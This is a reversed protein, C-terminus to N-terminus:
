QITVNVPIVHTDSGTQGAIQQQASGLFAINLPGSTSPQNNTDGSYQATITCIGTLFGTTNLQFQATGNTLTQGSAYNCNAFSFSVIGTALKPSTVNATLTLTSGPAVKASSAALTTTTPAPGGGGGNGSGGGCGIALSLLSALGLGLIARRSRGDGPFLLLLLAAFGALGSLTWWNDRGRSILAPARVHVPATTASLTTSPPPTSITLTATAPAGNNLTVSAPSINCAAGPISSGQWCSLQVTSTYNSMPTITLTETGTQGATIVLPATGTSVSFDPITVTIFFGGGSAAEYNSDGSYNAFVVESQKPTFTMTAQLEWNGASDSAVSTTVPNTINGDSSGSFSFSGTPKLAANSAPNTTDVSVGVTVTQGYVVSNSTVTVSMATRYVANVTVPASTSSAYNADGSYQVTLTHPGSAGTVNIAFDEDVVVSDPAVRSGGGEGIQLIQTNADFVTFTGTPFAGSSQAKIEVYIVFPTGLVIPSPAGNVPSVIAITTPAPTVTVVDTASSATYSNDGSYSALLTHSGGTLQISQDETYGQSNLPFAGAVLPSGNDTLSLTGTPCGYILVESTSNFCNTGSSNTVDSRLLYSSGYVLTTANPNTIQGTNLDFTALRLGTKSSEPNVTVTVANSDSGGYTGDGAYHAMVTYSTGGPLMSTTGSATGNSLTLTDFGFTNTGQTAMLSVDGTAQPSTPSVSASVSIPAGHTINIAKGGNLTLTTTSPKFIVSNWNNVMNTANVSGLGTALDYGVGANYGSLIGYPDGSNSTTCNLSGTACPMAITGTTVDNFVCTSAPGTSSNCTNASQAAALKYFIFNPNGQQAATKQDVLAMLGAFAPSSVSTGGISVFNFNNCSGPLIDAECIVYFNGIFGDAAFLSVDPLDRKGDTPVTTGTQWPPKAYGGSCTAATSGAPTTCNSKGGGGGVAFVSVSIQPNNCNGEPGASFGVQAWIANTCSDNWTTEPIYGKASEQTPSNGNLNWYTGPNSFDNFDTGGVAVNYPTSALGNVELGNKAPQPAPGQLFDCGASGQDGSSVMVTIGQAAAQQWLNKYFQNGATGLDLECALFSQSMIPAIDNDVIYLASLDVGDTTETSESAVLKITAGRAVAGSWEVDLDAETEDGPVLGPDPGDLIVQPPNAPLGFLTRFNSVDQVNINSRGVIAISQGTGDIPTRANWLPLVNYITAFDFPTVANCYFPAGSNTTGCQYTLLPTIGNAPAPQPSKSIVRVNEHMAKRRFNDLTDVGVVVPALAAPILPDSANAWHQKGNIVYSHISTHFAEQVQEATGSFEIVDRGNSVRAVQFGHSALWAAVTQIDQASPGFQQGFENPTLWKHFSPSSKDQQNELLTQLAAEQQPSRSLVLLMRQMPLSPPAPGRDFEPRALPHTNGALRTLKNENVAQTILPRQNGAQASAFKPVALLLVFLTLATPCVCRGM